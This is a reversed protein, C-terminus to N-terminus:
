HQSQLLHYIRGKKLRRRGGQGQPRGMQSLRSVSLQIEFELLLGHHSNRIKLPGNWNKMCNISRQNNNSEYLSKMVKRSVKLFNRVSLISTSAPRLKTELGM